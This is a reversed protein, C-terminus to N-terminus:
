CKPFAKWPLWSPVPIVRIFGHKKVFRFISFGQFPNGQSVQLFFPPRFIPPMCDQVERRTLIYESKAFDEQTHLVDQLQTQM